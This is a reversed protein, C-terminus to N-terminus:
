QLSPLGMVAACSPPTGDEAWVSRTGLQASDGFARLALALRGGFNQGCTEAMTLVEGHVPAIALTVTTAEPETEGGESIPPATEEGEVVVTRVVSQDLSWVQANQLITRAIQDKTGSGTGSEGAERNEVQITLIVDVYDGPRILGSASIVSSVQISVARRGDPIVYALPPNETQAIAAGTATVKSPIVQEGAVLSVRTVQGIVDVPDGYAGALVAEAPLPKVTVMGETIRAGVPISENAVVVPMGAEGSVQGGGSDARSLYVVVLAASVLGLFLGIFILAKNSKGGLAQNKIM